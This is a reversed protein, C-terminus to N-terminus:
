IGVKLLLYIKGCLIRRKFVYRKKGTSVSPHLLKKSKKETSM